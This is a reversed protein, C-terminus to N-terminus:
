RLGDPSICRINLANHTHAQCAEQASPRQGTRRVAIRTGWEQEEEQPQKKNKDKDTKEKDKNDKNNNNNNNNNDGRSMHSLGRKARDAFTSPHDKNPTSDASPKNSSPPSYLYVYMSVVRCVYVCVNVYAHICLDHSIYMHVLVDRPWCM